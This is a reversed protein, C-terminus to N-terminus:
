CLRKSHSLVAPDYECVIVACVCLLHCNESKVLVLLSEAGDPSVGAVVPMNLCQEGEYM